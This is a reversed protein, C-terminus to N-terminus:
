GAGGGGGLFLRGTSYDLPRGGLGTAEHNRSDGGWTANGPPLTLANQNSGSFTYGGRGGGASNTSTRLNMTGAPPEISWATGWGAVSQDPVGLGSWVATGTSNPANAGGGGGANHGDGGGGGNAGPARCYRGGFVDYEAQYGAVGEGKEAGLASGTSYTTNVGFSTFNDGVLSGGRFGRGDVNIAGGANVVTNGTVEVALVGGITGNWDDCTLIGGSNITLSTYRPVRIVMPKRATGGNPIYQNTTGCDITITTANPVALVQRFEYLGTSYYDVPSVIKGWTTDAGSSVLAADKIITGQAQYIMILDGPQLNGSFRANANLASNAVTISTSGAAIFATIATYENVITNAATVTRPGHLGQQAFSNQAIFLVFLVIITFFQKM